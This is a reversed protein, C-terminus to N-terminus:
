KAMSHLSVHFCPNLSRWSLSSSHQLYCPCGAKPRIISLKGELDFGSFLHSSSLSFSPPPSPSLVLSSFLIFSSTSIVFVCRLAREVLCPTASPTRVSKKPAALSDATTHLSQYASVELEKSLAAPSPWTGYKAEWVKYPRLFRAAAGAGCEYMLRKDEESISFTSLSIDPAPIWIVESRKEKEVARFQEVYLILEVMRMAYERLNTATQPQGDDSMSIWFGLTKPNRVGPIEDFCWLPCNDIVGGDVLLDGDSTPVAQFLFPVAMSSQCARGIQDLPTKEASFEILAGNRVSTAFVKLLIGSYDYLDQFTAYRLGTWEFILDDVLEALSTGDVAGYQGLMNRVGQITSMGENLKSLDLCAAREQVQAVNLGCAVLVAPVSGASVGAVRKVWKLDRGDDGYTDAIVGLAAPHVMSKIGGGSFVLNEWGPGKSRKPEAVYGDAGGGGLFLSGFGKVIGGLITKKSGQHEKLMDKTKMVGFSGAVLNGSRAILLQHWRGIAVLWGDREAETAFSFLMQEEGAEDSPDLVSKRTLAIGYDGVRTQASHAVFELLDYSDLLTGQGITYLQLSGESIVLSRTKRQRMGMMGDLEVTVTTEMWTPLEPMSENKPLVQLMFKHVDVLEKPCFAHGMM